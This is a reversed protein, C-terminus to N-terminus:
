TRPSCHEQLFAAITRYFAPPNDHFPFHGSTPIEAVECDSEKLRPLYSLQQKASGYMFLTPISLATYRHVLNGHDSYEVLSPALEFYASASAKELTKAYTRLGIQPEQALRRKLAPFSTTVFQQYDSQAVARSFFCDEPALNGEVNIFGRVMASYREVFLLGVLGGMSHGILVAKKINLAALVLHTIEVLDDIGLAAHEPYPSDGCGPFDFALLTYAELEPRHFAERFDNKSCGLGHLYLVTGNRGRRCSYEITFHRGKYMLEVPQTHMIEPYMSHFM